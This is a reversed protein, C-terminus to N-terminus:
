TSSTGERHPDEIRLDQGDTNGNGPAEATPDRERTVTETIEIGKMSKEIQTDEEAVQVDRAHEDKEPDTGRRYTEEPRIGESTKGEGLGLTREAGLLEQIGADRSLAGEKM